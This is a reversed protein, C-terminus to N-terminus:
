RGSCSPRLPRPWCQAPSRSATGGCCCPSRWPEDTLWPLAAPHLPVIHRASSLSPSLSFSFGALLVLPRDTRAESGDRWPQQTHARTLSPTLSHSHSHSHTLTPKHAHSLYVLLLSCPGLPPRRWSRAPSRQRAPSCCLLPGLPCCLPARTARSPPWSRPQWCQRGQHPADARSLRGARPTRVRKM